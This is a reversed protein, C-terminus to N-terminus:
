LSTPPFSSISLDLSSKIGTVQDGTTTGEEAFPNAVREDEQAIVSQEKKQYGEKVNM